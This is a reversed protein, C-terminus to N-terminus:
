VTTYLELHTAGQGIDLITDASPKAEPPFSAPRGLDEVADYYISDDDKDDSLTSAALPVQVNDDRLAAPAQPKEGMLAKSLRQGAERLVGNVFQTQVSDAVIKEIHPVCHNRINGANRGVNLIDATLYGIGQTLYGQSTFEPTKSPKGTGPHQGYLTCATSFFTNVAGTALAMASAERLSEVIGGTHMLADAIGRVMATVPGAGLVGFLRIREEKEPELNPDMDFSGGLRKRVLSIARDVAFEVLPRLAATALLGLQTGYFKGAAGGHKEGLAGLARPVITYTLYSAAQIAGDKLGKVIPIALASIQNAEDVKKSPSTSKTTTPSVQRQTRINNPPPTLGGLTLSTTM